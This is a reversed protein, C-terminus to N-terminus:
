LLGHEEAEKKLLLLHGELTRILSQVAEKPTKGQAVFSPRTTRVVVGCNGPGHCESRFTFHTPYKSM